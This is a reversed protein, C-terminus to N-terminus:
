LVELITLLDFVFGISSTIIEFTSCGATLLMAACAGTILSAKKSMVTEGNYQFGLGSIVWVEINHSPHPSIDVFFAPAKLHPTRDISLSRAAFSAGISGIPYLSSKQNCIILKVSVKLWVARKKSM